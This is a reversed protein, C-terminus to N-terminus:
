TLKRRSPPPGRLWGGQRWDPEVPRCRSQGTWGTQRRSSTNRSTTGLRCRTTIKALTPLGEGHQLQALSLRRGAHEIEFEICEFEVSGTMLQSARVSQIQTQKRHLGSIFRWPCFCYANPVGRLGLKVACLHGLPSHCGDRRVTASPAAPRPAPM